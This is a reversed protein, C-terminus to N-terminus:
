IEKMEQVMFLCFIKIRDLITQKVTYEKKTHSNNGIAGVGDIVPIGMDSLTNADSGGGTRARGCAIGLSESVSKYKQYLLKSADTEQMPPRDHLLHYTVSVKPNAPTSVCQAIAQDLAEKQRPEWYRVDIGIKCSPAVVNAAIGGEILNCGVTLGAEYDNLQELALILHAAEVIANLGNEPEVGAHAPKGEIRIEANIVGKRAVVVSSGELRGPEFVFGAKAGVFLTRMLAESDFSGIEEDSNFLAKLPLTKGPFLKQLIALAYVAVILGSKMDNTGPGRLLSGEEWMTNFDSQPPHVTDFHGMLVYSEEQAAEGYLLHPRAKQSSYVRELVVGVNAALAQLTDATQEIGAENSSFSNINVLTEFDDYIQSEFGQLMASIKEHMSVGKSSNNDGM